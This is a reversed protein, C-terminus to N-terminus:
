GRGVLPSEEMLRWYIQGSFQGKVKKWNGNRRGAPVTEGGCEHCRAPTKSDGPKGAPHRSTELISVEDKNSVDRCKPETHEEQFRGRSQILRRGKFAVILAQCESHDGYIAMSSMLNGFTNITADTDHCPIIEVDAEQETAQEFYGRLYAAAGFSNPGLLVLDLTLYGQHLDARFGSFSTKVMDPCDKSRLLHTLWKYARAVMERANAAWQHVKEGIYYSGLGILYVALNGELELLKKKKWLPKRAQTGMCRPCMRQKCCYRPQHGDCQIVGCNKKKCERAQLEGCRVARDHGAQDGELLRNELWIPNLRNRLKSIAGRDTHLPFRRRPADAGPSYFPEPQCHAAAQQMGDWTLADAENVKTDGKPYCSSNVKRAIDSYAKRGGDRRQSYKHFGLAEDRDRLHSVIEEPTAGQRALLLGIIFLTLSRNTQGDELTVTKEGNWYQELTGSLLEPRLEVSGFDVDVEPIADQVEKKQRLEELVWDPALPLDEFDRWEYNTLWEYLRGSQHLSGAGVMYGDSQIDYKGSINIRVLPTEQPARYYYHLHGEGGGSRAIATEPLGRSLFIEHWRPSDPAVSIVGSAALAIGINASPWTEWWEWITKVESSADKYGRHTLPAKGVDHGSHHKACACNGDRDPWCLPLVKLGKAALALALYKRPQITQEPTPHAARAALDVV